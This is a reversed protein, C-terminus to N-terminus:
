GRISQGMMLFASTGSLNLFFISTMGYAVPPVFEPLGPAFEVLPQFDSALSSGKSVGQQSAM